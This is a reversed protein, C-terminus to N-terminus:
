KAIWGSLNPGQVEVAAGEPNSWSTRRCPPADPRGWEVRQNRLRILLGNTTAHVTPKSGVHLTWRRAVRSVQPSAASEPQPTSASRVVQHKETGPGMAEFRKLPAAPAGHQEGPDLPGLLFGLSTGATAGAQTPPSSAPHVSAPIGGRIGADGSCPCHYPGAWRGRPDCRSLGQADLLGPERRSRRPWGPLVDVPGAGRCDM